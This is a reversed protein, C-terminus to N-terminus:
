RILITHEFKFYLIEVIFFLKKANFCNNFKLIVRDNALNSM